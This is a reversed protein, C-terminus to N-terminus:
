VKFNCNNASSLNFTILFLMQREYSFCQPLLLFYEDGANKEPAYFTM